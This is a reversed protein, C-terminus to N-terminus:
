VKRRRLVAVGGLAALLLGGAAPLPVEAPGVVVNDFGFSGLNGSYDNQTFQLATINGFSSSFDYTSLTTINAFTQSVMSGDSLIGMITATVGSTYPSFYVLDISKASFAAGDIREITAVAGALSQVYADGSRFFSNAVDGPTNSTRFGDEDFSTFSTPALDYDLTISSAAAGTACAAALGLALIFQKM